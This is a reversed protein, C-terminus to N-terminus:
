FSFTANVMGHIGAQPFYGDMIYSEDNLMYRYVWANTEYSENFINNLTANLEMKKFINQKVMFVAQFNGIIYPDLSREINTTNDIYQRSVYNSYFVVKLNKLIQYNIQAGATVSPSFSITTSGLYNEYQYPENEPDDWYNWNDVYETFNSIKNNSLTLNANLDISESIKWAAVTEIGFRYSEPVNTMIAAGVDNIKGTHVFQNVYDMYFLNSEISIKKTKLQYGIEYDTLKESSIVQNPTADRYITRTPERNSIAVSAYFSNNANFTYYIGAKPNLFTFRHQQTLDRLDDHLGTMSYSIDRIQLDAFLHMKNNLQFITKIFTNFDNKKGTNEYWKTNIFSESAFKAWSIYGFHDGIYQNSGLGITTNFRDSQHQLALNFGYYDNDLWKQQVLDTTKIIQGDVVIDPFGYDSFKKDNKWDEYYGKGKTLFVAGSLMLNSHIQQAVLLQYYDQQYNDTQNSYYGTINGLSDTMVGAPNYTPNSTLSDKPIGYWAQYTKELGSTAILKINTKEGSWSGTLYYSKLDSEARDIYGDSIIKSLRGNLSFGKSGKGTGFSLTNKFTGFAGIGTNLGIFPETSPIETKINISAGFAATGNASTGVGRQIQINDISSALDPLDIFYVSHSEPDNVPVGNLTVNISTLDTGRIRLNTYGIGGGADSSVVLSPTSQLLFPLDNGTNQQQLEENKIFSFTFPSKETVRTANVVIEDGLFAIEHLAINLYEDKSVTIAEVKKEFGLYSVILEYQGTKMHTFRFEGQLDSLTSLGQKKVKLLAGELASGDTQNVVKGSLTFQASISLPMMLAILYYFLTKKM